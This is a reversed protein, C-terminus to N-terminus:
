RRFSPAQTLLSAAVVWELPRDREKLLVLNVLIQFVLDRQDGAPTGTDAGRDRFHESLGAGVHIHGVAVGLAALVRHRADFGAPARSFKQRQIVEARRCRWQRTQLYVACEPQPPRLHRTRNGDYTPDPWLSLQHANTPVM